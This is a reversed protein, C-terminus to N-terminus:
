KAKDAELYTLANLYHAVLSFFFQSLKYRCERQKNTEERTGFTSESAAESM